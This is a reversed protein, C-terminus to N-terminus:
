MVIENHYSSKLEKHPLVICSRIIVEDHVVVEKGLVTAGPVRIGPGSNPTATSDSLEGDLRVWAGIKSKWGVISNAICSDNGVVVGELLISDKVRVGPGIVVLAGVSVNPGLKSSPDVAASPHIYVDGKIEVSGQCELPSSPFTVQSSAPLTGNRRAHALYLRNAPLASEATKIQMFFDTPAKAEFVHLKRTGALPALVDQELRVRDTPPSLSLGTDLGRAMANALPAFINPNFLYVGCSVLASVFSEPKEVYHM